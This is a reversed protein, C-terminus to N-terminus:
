QLRDDALIAQFEAMKVIRTEGFQVLVLLDPDGTVLYDAKGDHALALLYNDKPDQSAFFTSRLEVQELRPMVLNLFRRVQNARIIQQFKKRFIVTSYEDVLKQTGLLCLRQNTLLDYLTRRSRRNISASVYWNTDLIVRISRKGM